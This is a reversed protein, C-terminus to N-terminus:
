SNGVPPWKTGQPVGRHAAAVGHAETPGVHQEFAEPRATEVVRM